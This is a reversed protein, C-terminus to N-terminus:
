RALLERIMSVSPAFFYGGGTPVVFDHGTTLTLGNASALRAHRVRGQGPQGNQGVLLDHGAGGHPNLHSNMWRRHLFEFQDTLSAQYSLFLLGRDAAPDLEFAPGYPLGRRLIRRTHAAIFGGADNPGGRPNLKRIHAFMPCTLGAPDAPAIPYPGVADGDGAPELPGADVDFEFYNNRLRDHGLEPVDAAPVRSIPAGSPWRGVILSALRQADIGHPGLRRAADEVFSRFGAVDQRLRRFALFSGNRLWSPGSVDVPGPLLPDSTQRPYGFVFEGPWILYQGPLGYRPSKTLRPTVLDTAAPGYRGRVGPQSIGDQFGFHESGVADLKNGAEQYVLRFGHDRVRAILETVFADLRVRDDAACIVFVDPEGRGGIVWNKPYGDSAPDTPDSLSASRTAMGLQFAEDFSEMSEMSELSEATRPEPLLKSLAARSFALNLWVDDIDPTASRLAHSTNAIEGRAARRKLDLRQSEAARILERTRMAEALTTVQSALAALLEKARSVPGLDLALLEMHPKSFGPIINGQIQGADLM